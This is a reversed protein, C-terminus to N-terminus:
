ACYNKLLTIQRIQQQEREMEKNIIHEDFNIENTGIFVRM